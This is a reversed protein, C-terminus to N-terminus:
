SFLSGGTAGAAIAVVMTEGIARSVGLILSAVIGSVAAPFVVRASPRPRKAGLGYAAERLAHPCRGCPTRPSRPWWRPSWSASGSAPPPWASSGRRATSAACSRRASGHPRLLRPGRQPHRGADGPDAQAVPPGAAAAYESLYIAAGLGLPAAVLMAVGTVLLTGVFITRSTSCRGPPPVVGTSVPQCLDINTLFDVGRGLLALLDARERGDVPLGRRLVAPRM